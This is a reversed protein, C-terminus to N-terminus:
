PKIHQRINSNKSLRAIMITGRLFSIRKSMIWILHYCIVEVRVEFDMM